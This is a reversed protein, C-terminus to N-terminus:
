RTTDHLPTWYLAGVLAGCAGMMLASGLKAWIPLPLAVVFGWLTAGTLLGGIAGVAAGRPRTTAWPHLAAILVSLLIAMSIYWAVLALPRLGRRGLHEGGSAAWGLVAWGAFGAAWLLM